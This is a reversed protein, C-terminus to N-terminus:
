MGMNQLITTLLIDQVANFVAQINSTDTATTKHSYIPKQPNDNENLFQQEIFTFANDIDGAPGEYKPFCVSLPVTKIKKQFIDYKNFFLIVPTNHFWVNTITKSFLQLAEHMRNTAEDEYLKLDYGSLSVCFILATVNEFCHMWKRRESRQGGVDVLTFKTKNITFDTEIIGTTKARSRLVDQVDPVYGPAVLRDINQFYYEASDNLQFQSSMGFTKQIGEDQWLKKLDEGHEPTLEGTFYDDELIKSAIPKVDDGFANEFNNAAEVLVKASGVLNSFIISKFSMREEDSFGNLHLIKMQKAITSKGSEGAGLLLLKIHNQAQKKDGALQDEIKKNRAKEEASGSNGGCM